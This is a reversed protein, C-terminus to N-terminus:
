AKEKPPSLPEDYAWSPLPAKHRLYPMLISTEVIVAIPFPSFIAIAKWWSYGEIYKGLLVATAMVVGALLMNAIYVELWNRM